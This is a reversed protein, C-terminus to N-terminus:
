SSNCSVFLTITEVDWSMKLQQLQHRTHRGALEEDPEDMVSNKIQKSLSPAVKCEFVLVNLGFGLKLDYQVGLVDDDGRKEEFCDGANSVEEDNVFLKCQFDEDSTLNLYGHGNVLDHKKLNYLLNHLSVKFSVFPLIDSPLSIIYSQNTYGNAPVKYEFLSAVSQGPHTPFLGKKIEQNRLLHLLSNNLAKQQVYQSIHTAIAVTSFLATEQIISSQEPLLPLTKGMTNNLSKETVIQRTTTSTSIEPEENKDTPIAQKQEEQEDVQPEEMEQKVEPVKKKRGKKKPTEPVALETKNLSIKLKPRHIKLKLKAHDDEPGGESIKAKLENFKENFYEELANADQHIQSSEDNYLRANSFILVANDYFKLLNDLLPYKPSFLKKKELLSILKNFSMPKEVFNLYDTYIDTDVDEIFPGSLVGEGPFEHNMVDELLKICEEPLKGFTIQPVEPKEEHQKLKLKIKPNEAKVKTASAAKTSEFEKIQDKVFDVIKTANVVIWSDPANYTTANDLLLQFDQLFESADDVSYKTKIRKQIDNLCIPHEIIQYYDPYLKKSPLKIFPFAIQEDNEDRLENVLNLTTQFFERYDDAGQHDLKPKKPTSTASSAKRKPPM